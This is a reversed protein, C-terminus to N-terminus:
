RLRLGRRDADQLGVPQVAAGRRDLRPRLLGRQRRQAARRPLVHEGAGSSSCTVPVHSAFIGIWGEYVEYDVDGSRCSPDWNVTIEGDLAKEVTLMSGPVWLGDPGFILGTPNDLGGSGASVFADVFSMTVPDYRLVGDASNSTVLLRGDCAPNGSGSVVDVLFRGSTAEQLTADTVIVRYTTSLTPTVLQGRDTGLDAWTGPAIEEQWRHTYPAYGGSVSAFLDVTQGACVENAPGAVTVELAPPSAAIYFNDFALGVGDAAGTYKLLVSAIQQGPLDFSWTFGAADGPGTFELCDPNSVGEPGDLVVTSLLADGADRATITWQECPALGGERCDIDIIVGSTRSVPPSYLILLDGAVGIANNDTLFSSGLGQGQHPLDYDYCGNFATRPSSAKAIQPHGVPEGTVTDVPM